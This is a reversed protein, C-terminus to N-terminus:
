GQTLALRLLYNSVEQSVVFYKGNTAAIKEAKLRADRIARIKNEEEQIGKEKEVLSDTHSLFYFIINYLMCYGYVYM